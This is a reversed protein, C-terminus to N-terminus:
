FSFITREGGTADRILSQSYAEESFRKIELTLPALLVARRVVDIISSAVSRRAMMFTSASEATLILMEFDHRRRFEGVAEVVGVGMAKYGPLTCFDHGLIMGDPKLKPLFAELDTLAGDYSHDGDVYIWDFYEDPFEPAIDGSFARHVVIKGQDIPESFRDLVKRMKADHGHDDINSIDGVYEARSQHVWPDILHLRAPSTSIWIQESFDGEAVGIEAVVGGKPLATLLSNRGMLVFLM